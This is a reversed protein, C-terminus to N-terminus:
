NRQVQWRECVCVCAKLFTKGVRVTMQTSGVVVVVEVVVVAVYDIGCTGHLM